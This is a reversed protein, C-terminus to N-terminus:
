NHKPFIIKLRDVTHRWSQSRPRCVSNQNGFMGVEHAAEGLPVTQLWKVPVFFESAASDDMYNRHYAARQAVELIPKMGFNTAVMFTKAPECPGLVRCVGVFGAGPIKVWVRDGTGLLQLTRSYWPAGGACIFGLEVADEWSREPGHGFSHYFEGNWPETQARGSEQVNVQTEIPDILWSRSLFQDAGSEFVQFFLINIPIDRDNLYKVIRETASDISSAVVIIQHNNNINDEELTMQFKIEFAKALDGGGSFRSFISAVEQSTLKDVWAAYDLAQAVVDRPTKDRKLEVLVLSGDPAIAVLDVIGGQGTPVQRGILMWEDSLIRPASVIMDELLQESSLSTVKLEQPQEAVKWLATQIPM